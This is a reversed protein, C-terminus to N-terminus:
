SDSNSGNGGEASKEYRINHVTLTSVYITYLRTILIRDTTEKRLNKCLLLCKKPRSLVKKPDEQGNPVIQRFNFQIFQFSPPGARSTLYLQSSFM